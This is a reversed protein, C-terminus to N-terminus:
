KLPGVAKQTSKGTDRITVESASTLPTRVVRVLFTKARKRGTVAPVSNRLVNCVISMFKHQYPATMYEGMMTTRNRATAKLGGCALM